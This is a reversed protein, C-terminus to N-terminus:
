APGVNPQIAAVQSAVYGCTWLVMHELSRAADRRGNRTLEALRAQIDTTTRALMEVDATSLVGTARLTALAGSTSQHTYVLGRKGACTAAAQEFLEDLARRASSCSAEIGAPDKKAFTQHMARLTDALRGQSDLRADALGAVIANLLTLWTDVPAFTLADGAFTWGDTALAQRLEDVRARFLDSRSAPVGFSNQHLLLEALLATLATQDEDCFLHFLSNSDTSYNQVVDAFHTHLLRACADSPLLALTQAAVGRSRDNFM